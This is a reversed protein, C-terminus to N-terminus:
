GARIDAFAGEIRAIRPEIPKEEDPDGRRM